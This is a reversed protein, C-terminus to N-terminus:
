LSNVSVRGGTAIANGRQVTNSDTQENMPFANTVHLHTLSALTTPTLFGAVRRWREELCLAEAADRAVRVARYM